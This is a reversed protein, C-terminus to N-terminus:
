CNLPVDPAKWSLVKIGAEHYHLYHQAEISIAHDIQYCVIIGMKYNEDFAQSSALRAQAVPCLLVANEAKLILGFKQNRIHM